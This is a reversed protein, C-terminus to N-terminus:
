EYNTIEVTIRHDRKQGELTSIVMGHFGSKFARKKDLHPGIFMMCALMVFILLSVISFITRATKNM